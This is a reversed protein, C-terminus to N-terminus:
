FSKKQWKREKKYIRNKIIVLGNITIEEKLIILIIFYIISGISVSLLLTILNDLKLTKIIYVVIGMIIGSFLYKFNKLSYFEIEKLYKKSFYLM